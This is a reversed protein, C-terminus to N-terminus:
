RMHVSVVQSVGPTEMTVGYLTNAMEMTQKNHTVLIFQSDQSITRVVDNFRAVNADDLAADAEDLVCFPSPRYQFIALILSLATMSKEGGSLLNLNQLRKGPPQAVIEVGSELPDQENELQLFAQGGGFLVPFLKRFKEDIGHFAELFRAKSVRNIRQILRQLFDLTRNLDEYQEMYFQHRKQLDEYEEIAAPNVEGLRGIAEQLRELDGRIKGEDEDVFAEDGEQERTIDVRHKEWLRGQLHDRKIHIETLRVQVADRVERLQDLDRRLSKIKMEKEQCTCTQANLRANLGALEDELGKRSIQAERLFRENREIEELVRVKREEAVCCEGEKEQLYENIRRIKEETDKLRSAAGAEKERVRHVEFERENLEERALEVDVTWEGLARTARALLGEQEVYSRAIAEEQDGSESEKVTLGDWEEQMQFLESELVEKRHRSRSTDSLARQIDNEAKLIEMDMQYLRQQLREQEAENMRIKRLLDESGDRITHFDKELVNVEQQLEKIERKTKLLASSSGNTKGGSVIGHADIMDGDRTVIRRRRGNQRWLAVGDELEPVFVVDQLLTRAVDVYGDKINVRDLLSVAPFPLADPDHDPEGMRLQLPIFSGRGLTERKLYQIAQLGDQQEEVVISQLQEGLVTELAVEYEPETELVDAVMGRIRGDLEKRERGKMIARTGEQYGEYNQQFEWLSQFRSRKRNLTEELREKEAARCGHAERLRAEESKLSCRELVLLGRQEKSKSQAAKVREHSESGIRMEEVLANIEEMARVRRHERDRRRERLSLLRNRVEAKQTMLVFLRDKIEEVRRKAEGEGAVLSDYTNRAESLSEAYWSERRSYEVLKAKISQLEEEALVRQENAKVLQKRNDQISAELDEQSQKLYVQRSEIQNSEQVVEWLRSQTEEVGGRVHIAESRIAEVEADERAAEAALVTHRREAEDRAAQESREQNTLASFERQALFCERTRIEEKMKQYRRARQAQRKLSNMQRNIESLVADIHRLNERTAEMKRTASEKRAKYKVIGAAGEIFSRKRDPGAGVIEGIYGQEIISYARTGTGTDMFLDVVDKLRVPIQNIRYESEGTRYYVREVSLQELESYPHPFGRVRRVFNMQVRAMGDVPFQETGSFLVEEMRKGRLKKPSQEGLVWRIADVVNSKGCGNPGVIATVGTPFVIEREEHFSKFGQVVLSKILM